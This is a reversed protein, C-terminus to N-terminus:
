SGAMPVTDDMSDIFMITSFFSISILTKTKVSLLQEWKQTAKYYYSKKSHM